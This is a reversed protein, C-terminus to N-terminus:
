PSFSKSRILGSLMKSIEEAQIQWEVATCDDIYGVEKAISSQSRFESCSSKAIRFFQRQDKSTGREVGEAINSSISL